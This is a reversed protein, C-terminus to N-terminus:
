PLPRKLSEEIYKDAEAPTRYLGMSLRTNGRVCQKPHRTKQTMRKYRRRFSTDTLRRPINIDISERNFLESM